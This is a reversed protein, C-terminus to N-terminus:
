KWLLLVILFAVIYFLYAHINGAQLIRFSSTVRAGLRYGPRILRDLVPDPVHSGFRTEGPFNPQRSPSHIGPRVVWSFFGVVWQAFSSSTYQMRPGPAAYGCDWTGASTAGQLRSWASLLVYALGVGGVLALGFVSIWRLPVLAALAGVVPTPGASWVRVAQELAPVVLFPALGILFCCGVLVLMPVMMSPPPEHANLTHHSRAQGLFVSGLAKVFCAVALAGVLALAPAAFAAGAWAAGREASLSRFLGLYILLESVFGNLPPLGCIAAAGLAFCLATRPMAKALGGQRDLERTGTVHIVAGASLFLLSKFLGHNWVHLLAGALGLVMLDMRGLSRGVLAV